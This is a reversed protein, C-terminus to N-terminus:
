LKEIVKKAISTEIELHKQEDKNGFGLGVVVHILVGKNKVLVHLGAGAKLGSGGYYAADGIDPVSQVNQIYEKNNEFQQATPMTKAEADSTISLQVFQMNTENADWFCRRTGLPNAAKDDQLTITINAGPFVSQIDETTLLQCPNYIKASANQAYALFSLGMLLMIFKYISRNEM